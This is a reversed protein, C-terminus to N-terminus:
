EGLLIMEDINMKAERIDNEDRLYLGHAAMFDHIDGYTDDIWQLQAASFKHKAQEVKTDPENQEEEEEEEEEEAEQEEEEEEEKEQKGEHFTKIRKTAPEDNFIGDYLDDQMFGRVLARGEARDEDDHMKLGYMRLFKFETIRRKKLWGKEAATYPPNGDSVYIQASMSHIERAKFEQWRQQEAPDWRCNLFYPVGWELAPPGLRRGRPLGNGRVEVSYLPRTPDFYAVTGSQRHRITGRTAPELYNGLSVDYGDGNLDGLINCLLDPVHLVEKLHLSDYSAAGCRDPSPQTPIEVTGIGSVQLPRNGYISYVTSTFPTYTKFWGRDKAASIRTLLPYTRCVTNQKSSM